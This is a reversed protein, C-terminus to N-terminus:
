VSRGAIIGSLWAFGLNYGGCDGDVDLIEGIIYLNKQLKSEMTLPNIERTDIGGTCVQSNDYSKSSVINVDFCTIMDVLSKKEIDNLENWKRNNKLDCRKLILDVLKKNLLGVLFNDLNYDIIKSRDELYNYLDTINPLFNINIKVKKNDYLARNAIGSLNFICIGSVGYNTLMIEGNDEKKVENDVIVSVKVNSRVGDWDNYFNDNGVLQVLSPLVPRITHGFIECLKYGNTKEKYYSYSGCAIVLKDEIVEGNNARVFFKDNIYKINEVDFDNIFQVGLRKAELLLSDRISSAQMSMPYYYGNKIVPDIGISKFFELVLNRNELTNVKEIFDNNNSYFHRNDFDENWYNCSGNGTVLIKKGSSSLKDVVIVKNGRRALTIACVLGSAGAGVVIVGM